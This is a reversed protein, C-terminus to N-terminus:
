VTNTNNLQDTTVKALVALSANMMNIKEKLVRRKEGINPDEQLLLRTKEESLAIGYLICQSELERILKTSFEMEMCMCVNDVLRRSAIDWYAQILTVMEHQNGKSDVGHRVM